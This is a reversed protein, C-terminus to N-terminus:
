ISEIPRTLSERKNRYLRIRVTEEGATFKVHHSDSKRTVRLVTGNTQKAMNLQIGTSAAHSIAFICVARHMSKDTMNMMCPLPLTMVSRKIRTSGIGDIHFSARSFFLFIVREIRNATPENYTKENM